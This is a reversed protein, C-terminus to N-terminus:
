KLEIPTEPGTGTVAYPNENPDPDPTIWTFNIGDDSAAYQYPALGGTGSVTISGDEAGFCSINTYGTVTAVPIDNITVTVDGALDAACGGANEITLTGAYTGSPVVGPIIFGTMTEGGAEFINATTAQDDLGATNADTMWDISYAIPSNTTATYVLGTTQVTNSFCVPTITGDSNITPLSCCSAYYSVADIDLDYLINEIFRIYRTSATLPISQNIYNLSSITATNVTTWTSADSSIAVITEPDGGTGQNRKWRINITGGSLLLNGGTLDLILEDGQDNLTAFTNDPSGLSNTPNVVGSESLLAVANGARYYAPFTFTIIM